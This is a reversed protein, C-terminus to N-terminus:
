SVVLFSLAFSIANYSHVRSDASHCLSTVPIAMRFRGVNVFLARYIKARFAEAEVEFKVMAEKKAVMMAVIMAMAKLKVKSAKSM